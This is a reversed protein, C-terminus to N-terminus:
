HELEPILRSRQVLFFQRPAPHFRFDLMPLRSALPRIGHRTGSLGGSDSRMSRGFRRLLRM